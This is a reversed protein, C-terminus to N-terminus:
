EKAKGQAGSHRGTAEEARDRLAYFVQDSGLIAKCAKSDERRADSPDDCCRNWTRKVYQVEPMQRAGGKRTPGYLGQMKEGGNVEIMEYQVPSSKCGALVALLIAPVVRRFAKVGITM